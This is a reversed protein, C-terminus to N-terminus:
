GAHRLEGAHVASDAILDELRSIQREVGDDDRADEILQCTHRITTRDRDFAPAVSAQSRSCLTHLLYMAIQRARAVPAASRSAHLLLEPAVGADASVVAIHAAAEVDRRQLQRWRSAEDGIRDECEGLKM